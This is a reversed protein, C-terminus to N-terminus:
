VLCYNPIFLQQGVDIKNEDEIDNIKAIDNVTSRFRKAINWLTDGPKVFYITLSSRDNKRKEDVNIEEIVQMPQNNSLNVVFELDIKIDIGGDPMVTFDQTNVQINTEINSAPNAGECDMNYNFPLVINKTNIRASNDSDFLFNLEVQGEYMIRGQLLTKNIINPKIEVDYIKHNGIETIFQKERIPYIDKVIQRQSIAQIQKQTYILDISPSYLDQIINMQKTQSVNCNIEIEAEIYISHEEISNPKIIINKLEYSVDSLNEDTVDPMDIFGMIPILQSTTCIRNDETLYVIKVSADAKVLVKNYSIKTEENILNFNVKMIESLNDASDIVLTDKAYVKTLGSGLMSNLELTKDLLQIDKIDQVEKVFEIEDNSMVKLDLDIVAKLSIKRGNLVRCEITKLNVKCELIMEPKINDMEIIKSFDLTTNLSRVSSSEDDAIYMVYTNVCGDIKIKGTDIEKKYICVIGSSDITNLVDPKIDPVIFDEEM